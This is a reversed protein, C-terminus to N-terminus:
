EKEPTPAAPTWHTYVKETEVCGPCSEEDGDGATQIAINCNTCNRKEGKEPAPIAAERPINEADPAEAMDYPAPVAPQRMISRVSEPITGIINRLEWLNIWAGGSSGDPHARRCSAIATEWRAWEAEREDGQGSASLRAQVYHEIEAALSEIALTSAICDSRNGYREALERTDKAPEDQASLRSLATVIKRRSERYSAWEVCAGDCGAEPGCIHTPEMPAAYDLASLGTELAERLEDKNSM